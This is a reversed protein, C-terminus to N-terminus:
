SWVDTVFWSRPWCPFYLSTRYKWLLQLLSLLYLSVQTILILTKLLTKLLCHEKDFASSLVEPGNILSTLASKGKDFVSSAWNKITRATPLIIKPQDTLLIIIFIKLKMTPVYLFLFVSWWTSSVQAIIDACAIYSVSWM